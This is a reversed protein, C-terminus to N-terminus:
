KDANDKKDDATIYTSRQIKNDVLIRMKAGGNSLDAAATIQLIDTQQAQLATSVLALFVTLYSLLLLLEKQKLYCDM